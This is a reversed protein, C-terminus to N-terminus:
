QNVIRETREALLKNIRDMLHKNQRQEISLIRRLEASDAQLKLVRDELKEVKIVVREADALVQEAKALKYGVTVLTTVAALTGGIAIM